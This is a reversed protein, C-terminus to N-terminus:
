GTGAGPRPAVRYGAGRVTEILDPDRLKARLSSVHVELTRHAGPWVTHWVQLLLHDRSRVTGPERMLAALLDFERPRLEVVAGGSMVTRTALDLTVAGVTLVPAPAHQRRRLVAEIRASLEDLGVPKVVYDDAGSRLGLVREREQSRATIMIIGVEAAAVSERIERCLEVGDADPLGLDLLVVDPLVTALADRAAAGTTVRSVGFGRSTLGSALADALRLDDEVVLVRIGHSQGTM